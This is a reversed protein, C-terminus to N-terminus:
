VATTPMGLPYDPGRHYLVLQSWAFPYAGAGAPPGDARHLGPAAARPRLLGARAERVAQRATQGAALAAYLAEEARTSLEDVIPGSYGVVQAVGDRHLM